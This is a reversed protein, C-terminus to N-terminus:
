CNERLVRIGAGKRVLFNWRHHARTGCRHCSAVIALRRTLVDFVVVPQERRHRAANDAQTM